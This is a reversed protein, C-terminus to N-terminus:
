SADSLARQIARNLEVEQTRKVARDWEEDIARQKQWQMPLYHQERSTSGTVMNGSM